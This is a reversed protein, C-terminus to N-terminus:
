VIFLVYLWQKKVEKLKHYYYTSGRVNGIAAEQIFIAETESTIYLGKFIVLPFPDTLERVVIYHNDM